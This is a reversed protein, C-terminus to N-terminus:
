WFANVLIGIVLAGAARVISAFQIFILIGVITLLIWGDCLTRTDMFCYFSGCFFGNQFYPMLWQVM